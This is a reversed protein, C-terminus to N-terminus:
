ALLSLFANTLTSVFEPYTPWTTGPPLTHPPLDVASRGSLKWIFARIASEYAYLFFLYLCGAIVNDRQLQRELNTLDIELRDLLSDEWSPSRFYNAKHILFNFLFNELGSRGSRPLRSYFKQLFHAFQAKPSSGPAPKGYKGANYDFYFGAVWRRWPNLGSKARNSFAYLETRYTKLFENGQALFYNGLVLFAPFAGSFGPTDPLYFSVIAVPIARRGRVMVSLAEKDPYVGLLAVKGLDYESIYGKDEDKTSHLPFLLDMNSANYSAIQEYTEETGDTANCKVNPMIGGFDQPRGGEITGLVHKKYHHERNYPSTFTFKCDM